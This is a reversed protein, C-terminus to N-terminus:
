KKRLSILGADRLATVAAEEPSMHRKAEEYEQAAAAADQEAAAQEAAAREAAAREAAAREAAAREAAAREAAVEEEVVPFLLPAATATEVRAASRAEDATGESTKSSAGGKLFDEFSLPDAAAKAEVADDEVIAEIREVARADEIGEEGPNAGAEGRVFDGFSLPATRAAEAEAVLRAGEEKRAKTKAAESAEAVFRADEKLRAEEAAAAEVAALAGDAAEMGADPNRQRRIRRWVGGFIKAIAARKGGRERKESERPTAVEAFLCFSRDASHWGVRTSVAAVSSCSPPTLRMGCNPPSPHIRFNPLSTDLSSVVTIFATVLFLAAAALPSSSPGMTVIAQTKDAQLKIIRRV